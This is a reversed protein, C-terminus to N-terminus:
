KATGRPSEHPQPPPPAAGGAPAPKAEGLRELVRRSVRALLADSADPKATDKFPEQAHPAADSLGLWARAAEGGTRRYLLEAFLLRALPSPRALSGAGPSPLEALVRGLFAQDGALDAAIALAIRASTDAPDAGLVLEAQERALTARGLAAARVAIEAPVVDARRGLKRALPLDGGAIAADLADLAGGAGGPPSGAGSGLTFDTRVETGRGTKDLEALKRSAQEAAFADRTRVAFDRLSRLALMSSPRRIVLEDLARRAEERRGLIELVHVRLLATEEIDPDLEFARNALELAANARRERIACGARERVLPEFDADLEQAEAFAEEARASHEPLRCRIAGIRTWIQPSEADEQAAAEFAQLATPLDGHAEADAGIAYLTYAYESIFRGEVERGDMVRVVTPASCGLGVGLSVLALAAAVWGLGGASGGRRVSFSFRDDARDRRM